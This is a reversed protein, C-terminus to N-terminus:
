RLAQALMDRVDQALTLPDFPKAIVGLAGLSLYRAIDGPRVNATLLIVPLDKARPVARIASLVKEGALDPMQVDLLVCDPQWSRDRLQEMADNGGTAWRATLAPDRELALHIIARIDPDDDVFLLKMPSTM